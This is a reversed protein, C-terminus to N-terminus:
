GAKISTVLPDPVLYTGRVTSVMDAVRETDYAALSPRFFIFVGLADGVVIESAQAWLEVAEPDTQSVGKLQESLATLAPDNFDCVNGLGDGVWATLKTVGASSGNYLGLGPANPELFDAVYSGGTIINIDLGIAKMQDAFVTAVDEIGFFPIYHLDISAGEAYGAEELLERAGEVDYALDDELEPVNFKHDTPWLQTAPQALGDYIAENIAERDIGKNIAARVKPDSLPGDKKCVHMGITQASDVRAYVDFPDSVDALQTPDTITVDVQGTRLAAIGSQPQENFIQVFEYGGLKVADVNWYAENRSLAMSQGTEFSDVVMPGAGLPVSGSAGGQAQISVQWGPLFTDYWSAATGDGVTLKATHPDVVEVSDLSFFQPTFAATNNSQLIVDLSAKLDSADLPSGDSFTLGDRLVVEITTTNVITASEALDPTLSGDAEPRLLRGYILYWIGDYANGNPNMTATDFMLGQGVQSQLDLGVKIVGNPDIDSAPSATSGTPASTSGDSSDDSSCATFALALVILLGLVRSIGRRSTITM